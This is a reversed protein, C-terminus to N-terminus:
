SEFSLETAEERLRDTEVSVGYEVKTNYMYNEPEIWNVYSVNISYSQTSLVQSVTSKKKMCKNGWEKM